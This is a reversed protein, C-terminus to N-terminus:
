PKHPQCSSIESSAQCVPVHSIGHHSPEDPANAVAELPRLEMRSSSDRVQVEVYRVRLDGVVKVIDKVGYSVDVMHLRPINFARATEVPDVSVKRGLEWWGWLPIICSFSATVM